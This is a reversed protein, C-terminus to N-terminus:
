HFCTNRLSQEHVPMEHKKFTNLEERIQVKMQPTLKRFTANTDPKRNYESKRFTPLVEVTEAFMLIKRECLEDVDPRVRLRTELADSLQSKKLREQTAALSPDVQQPKLINHEELEEREPRKKLISRLEAQREEFTPPKQLDNPGVHPAAENEDSSTGDDAEDVHLINRLKLDVKHPRNAIKRNLNNKAKEAELAAKQQVLANSVNPSLEDERLIHRQVLEEPGQRRSLKKGLDIGFTNAVKGSRVSVRPIISYKGSVMRGFGKEMATGDHVSPTGNAAQNEM